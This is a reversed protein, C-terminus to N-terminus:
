IVIFYYQLRNSSVTKWSKIYDKREWYDLYKREREIYPPRSYFAIYLKYIKGGASM